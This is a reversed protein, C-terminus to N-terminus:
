KRDVEWLHGQCYRNNDTKKKKAGPKMDKVLQYVRKTSIRYKRALSRMNYGNFEKQIRQDRVLRRLTSLCPFYISEGGLRSALKLANEMGILNAITGYPEPLEEPSRIENLWKNKM